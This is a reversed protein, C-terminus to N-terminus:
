NTTTGTSGTTAGTSAGTTGDSGSTTDTGTSGASSTSSDVSGSSSDVSGSSSGGAETCSVLEVEDIFFNTLLTGPFDAGFRLTHSGADAFQSVDVDVTQYGDYDPQAIDTVMFVTQDDLEVTLTNDGTQPESGSIALRFRLYAMDPPIEIAQSLSAHEEEELGGFWVFFEGAYPGAGDDETCSSDCIPTGFTDSAEDWVDSPTGGEFGSDAVLNGTCEGPFGGTTDNGSTGSTAPATTTSPSGTTSATMTGSGTGPDTTTSGTEDDNTAIICGSSLVTACLLSCLPLSRNHDM